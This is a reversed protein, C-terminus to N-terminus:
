HIKRETDPNEPCEQNFSPYTYASVKFMSTELLYDM